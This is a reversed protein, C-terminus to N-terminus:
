LTLMGKRKECLAYAKRSGLVDNWGNENMLVRKAEVSSPQDPAWSSFLGSSSGDSWRFDSDSKSANSLGIHFSLEKNKIFTRKIFENEEATNIDVLHSKRGECIEEAKKWKMTM